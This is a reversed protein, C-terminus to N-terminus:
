GTEEDPEPDPERGVLREYYEMAGPRMETIQGALRVFGDYCRNKPLFGHMTHFLDLADVCRAHLESPPLGSLIETIGDVPAPEPDPDPITAAEDVPTAWEPQPPIGPTPDTPQRQDAM